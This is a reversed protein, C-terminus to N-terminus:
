FYVFNVRVAILHKIPQLSYFQAGGGDEVSARQLRALSSLLEAGSKGGDEAGRVARAVVEFGWTPSCREHGEEPEERGVVAVSDLSETTGARVSGQGTGPQDTCGDMPVNLVQRGLERHHHHLPPLEQVM